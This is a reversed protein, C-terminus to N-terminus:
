ARKRLFLVDMQGLASGTPTHDGLVALFLGYQALCAALEHFQSQGQYYEGVSVETVLAKCHRLCDGGGKLVELEYGQVDLKILDAFALNRERRYDDLRRMEVAVQRVERIGSGPRTGPALPLLSSADSFDMVRLEATGNRAGLAVPHLAVGGLDRSTRAFQACHEDLPEFAAVRAEPIVAKALLTWTGVNAGIDYIHQIGLPRAAELLELSEIHGIALGRAVTNRLRRLRRRQRAWYALRELALGPNWLLQWRM